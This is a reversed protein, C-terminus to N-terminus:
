DRPLADGPWGAAATTVSNRDGTDAERYEQDRRQLDIWRAVAQYIWGGVDLRTRSPRCIAV